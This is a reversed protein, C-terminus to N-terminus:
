EHINGIVEVRLCDTSYSFWSYLDAYEFNRAWKETSSLLKLEWRAFHKRTYEDADECWVIQMIRGHEDSVKDGDYIEVGSKDKIGTYQDLEFDEEDGLCGPSEGLHYVGFSSGTFSIEIQDGTLMRKKAIEWARFKIERM